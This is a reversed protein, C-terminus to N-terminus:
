KNRETASLQSADLLTEGLSADCLWCARTIATLGECSELIARLRNQSSNFHQFLLAFQNHISKPTDSPAVNVAQSTASESSNFIDSFAPQTGVYLYNPPSGAAACWTFTVTQGSEVASTM